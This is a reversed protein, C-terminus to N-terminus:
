LVAIAFCIATLFEAVHETQLKFVIFVTEIKNSIRVNADVKASTAHYLRGHTSSLISYLDPSSIGDLSGHTYQIHQAPAFYQVWGSQSLYRSPYWNSGSKANYDFFTM